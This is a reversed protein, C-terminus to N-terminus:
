CLVEVKEETQFWDDKERNLFANEFLKTAFFSRVTQKQLSFLTHHICAGVSAFVDDMVLGCLACHPEEETREM